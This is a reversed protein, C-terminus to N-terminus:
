CSMGSGLTQRVTQRSRSPPLSPRGSRRRPVNTRVIPRLRRWLMAPTSRPPRHWSLRYRAPSVRPSRSHRSSGAAVSATGPAGATSCRNWYVSFAIIPLGIRPGYEVIRVRREQYLYALDDGQVWGRAERWSMRSRLRSRQRAEDPIAGRSFRHFFRTVPSHGAGRRM